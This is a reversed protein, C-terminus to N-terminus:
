IDGEFVIVRNGAPDTLYVYTSGWPKEEPECHESIGALKILFDDLNDTRFQLCTRALDTKDPVSAIELFGHADVDTLGLIAGSDGEENWERIIQLGLVKAYFHLTEDLRDTEIRTKIATLM